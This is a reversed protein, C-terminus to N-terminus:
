DEKPRLDIITSSPCRAYLNGASPTLLCSLGTLSCISCMKDLPAKDTAFRRCPAPAHDLGLKGASQMHRSLSVMKCEKRVGDKHTLCPPVQRPKGPVPAVKMTCWSCAGVQSWSMNHEHIPLTQKTHLASSLVALVKQILKYHQTSNNFGVSCGQGDTPPRGSEGKIREMYLLVRWITTLPDHVSWEALWTM